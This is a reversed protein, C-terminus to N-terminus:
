MVFEVRNIIKHNIFSIVSVPLSNITALNSTSRVTNNISQPRSAAASGSGGGGNPNFVPSEYYKVQQLIKPSNYADIAHKKSSGSSAPTDGIENRRKFEAYYTQNLLLLDVKRDRKLQEKILKLVTDFKEHEVLREGVKIIYDNNLVGAYMAPSDVDVDKIVHPLLQKNVPKSPKINLGIGSYNPWLHMVCRRLESRDSVIIPMQSGNALM